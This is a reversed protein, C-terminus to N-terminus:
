GFVESELSVTGEGMAVWPDEKDSFILVDVRRYREPELWPWERESLFDLIPWGFLFVAVLSGHMIASLASGIRLMIGVITRPRSAAMWQPASDHGVVPRM